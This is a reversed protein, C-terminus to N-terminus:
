SVWELAALARKDLHWCSSCRFDQRMALPCLQPDTGVTEIHSVRDCICPVQHPFAYNAKDVVISKTMARCHSKVGGCRQRWNQEDYDCDCTKSETMFGGL